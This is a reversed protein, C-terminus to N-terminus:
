MPNKQATSNNRDSQTDVMKTRIMEFPQEAHRKSRKKTSQQHSTVTETVDMFMLVWLCPDIDCSDSPKNYLLSTILCKGIEITEPRSTMTRLDNIHNKMISRCRKMIRFCTIFWLDRHNVPWYDLFFWSQDETIMHKLSNQQDKGAELDRSLRSGSM